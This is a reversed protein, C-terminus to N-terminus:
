NEEFYFASENYRLVTNIQKCLITPDPQTADFTGKFFTQIIGFEYSKENFTDYIKNSLSRKIAKEINTLKTDDNNTYIDIVMLARSLIENGESMDSTSRIIVYPMKAKDPALRKFVNPFGNTKSLYKTISEDFRILDQLQNMPNFSTM